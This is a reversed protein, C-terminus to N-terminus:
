FVKTNVLSRISSTNFSRPNNSLRQLNITSLLVDLYSNVNVGFGNFSPSIGLRHFLAKMSSSFSAEEVGGLAKNLDACVARVYASGRLDNCDSVTVRSNFEYVPILFSAVACGHPIGFHSTLPYSLAHCATTKTVDIVQGALHAGLALDTYVSIDPDKLVGPLAQYLLKLARLSKQKSEETSNVSWFSEIAQSLADLGSCVAIKSPLSQALMPDVITYAPYIYPHALSYKKKDVYVVAFHTAESGSGVTTPVAVLPKPLKQLREGKCIYAEPFDSQVSLGGVLKAMDIVSGGGVAVVIDPKIERYLQMGKYVDEIKPNSTFDTFYNIELSSSLKDFFKRAGSLEFSKNGTVLLVKRVNEVEFIEKIKELTGVGIYEGFM